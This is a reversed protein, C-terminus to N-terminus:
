WIFMNIYEFTTQAPWITTINTEIKRLISSHINCGGRLLVFCDHNKFVVIFPLIYPTKLVRPLMDSQHMQILHVIIIVRTLATCIFHM